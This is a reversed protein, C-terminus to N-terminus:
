AAAAAPGPDPTDTPHGTLALFVEDLNPQRLAIDDVSLGADELSRLAVLLGDSGADVGVSVRRTAEDLAVPGTSLRELAEAVRGLDDRHCTCRSWTAAARRKLEDPTGAAISRGHDVIVIESALQDAEDLYQTTLLM